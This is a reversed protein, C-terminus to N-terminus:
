KRRTPDLALAFFASAANLLENTDRLPYNERRLWVNEAALGEPMKGARRAQQTWQLATHWSVGLRPAVTQCAAQM